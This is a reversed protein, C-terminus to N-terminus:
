TVLQHMPNMGFQSLMDWPHIWSLGVIIGSYFDLNMWLFFWEYGVIYGMIRIALFVCSQGKRLMGQCIYVRNRNIIDEVNLCFRGFSIAPLVIGVHFIPVNGVINMRMADCLETPIRWFNMFGSVGCVMSAGQNGTSRERLLLYSEGLWLHFWEALVTFTYINM